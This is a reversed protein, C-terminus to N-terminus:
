QCNAPPVEDVFGLGQVTLHMWEPPVVDLSNAVLAPRYYWSFEEATDLSHQFTLFFTYMRRGLSWGPRWWWHSKFHDSPAVSPPNILRRDM